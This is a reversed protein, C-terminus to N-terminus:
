FALVLYQCSFWSPPFFSFFFLSVLFSFTIFPPLGWFLWFCVFPSVSFYVFIVKEPPSNKKLLLSLFAFFFCLYCSFFLCSPPNLALHPPGKPWRVRGKLGQFCFILPKCGLSAARQAM